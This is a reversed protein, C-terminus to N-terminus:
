FYISRKVSKVKFQVELTGLALKTLAAVGKFYAIQANEHLLELYRYSWPLMHKALLINVEEYRSKELLGALYWFMPGIHNESENMGTNLVIGQQALFRTLELCSEGFVIQEPDLYVAGWPPVCLHEPEIFLRQWHLDLEKDQKHM